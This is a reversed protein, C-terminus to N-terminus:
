KTENEIGSSFELGISQEVAFTKCKIKKDLCECMAYLQMLFHKKGKRWKRDTRATLFTQFQVFYSCKRNVDVDIM